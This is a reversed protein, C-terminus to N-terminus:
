TIKLVLSLKGVVIVKGVVKDNLTVIYLGEKLRAINIKQDSKKVTQSIFLRGSQDMIRVM